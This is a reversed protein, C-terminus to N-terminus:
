KPPLALTKKRAIFETLHRRTAANGNAAAEIKAIADGSLSVPEINELFEDHSPILMTTEVGLVEAVRWILFLPPHQRGAEINVISARSVGLKKALKDQSMRPSTRERADRIRGGVIEYLRDEELGM